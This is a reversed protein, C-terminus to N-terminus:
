RVIVCMGERKGVTIATAGLRVSWKERDIGTLDVAGLYDIRGNAVSLLTQKGVLADPNEPLNAVNLRIGDALKVRCNAISGGNTVTLASGVALNLENSVTLQAKYVVTGSGSLV